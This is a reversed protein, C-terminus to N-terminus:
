KWRKRGLRVGELYCSDMLYRFVADNVSRTEHWKALPYYVAFKFFTLLRGLATKDQWSGWSVGKRELLVRSEGVLLMRRCASELTTFHDHVAMAQRDYGLTLGKAALRLGLEADEYAAYPFDEDFLGNATLFSKKVSLNSTYFFRRPDAETKGELEGYSFQMGGSELWRMFPTIGADPAWTVHGLLAASEAPNKEHWAAHAQLLGPEAIMDDGTFLVIEGAANRVGLNRAAAPGRHEQRFYRVGGGSGRREAIDRTGDTSGDDVILVEYGSAPYTQRSLAALCKELTGKRNYTPIVVSILTNQM